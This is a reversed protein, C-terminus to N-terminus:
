LMSIVVKGAFANEDMMEHAKVLEDFGFVRDINPHYIGKEVRDIIKQIKEGDKEVSITGSDYFGVRPRAMAEAFSGSKSTGYSDTLSGALCLHAKNNRIKFDDNLTNESVITDVIGDAGDPWLKLVEEAVAGSSVIVEQMGTDLMKKVKHESRTVGIVQGGLHNVIQTIAIALASAGPRVLVKPEEMEHLQMSHFCCGWATFYTEPIAAFTVWDLDTEVPFVNSVPVVTQEAYSGNYARGMEGMAACVKQGPKLEGGPCDIVEGVCEIGIVRPFKVADGSGGMRTIAEARNLGFAKIAIKVQGPSAVPDPITELTLCDPGGPKHIVYARM